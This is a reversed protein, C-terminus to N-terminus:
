NFSVRGAQSIAFRIFTSARKIRGGFANAGPDIM